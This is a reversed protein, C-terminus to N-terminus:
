AQVAQGREKQWVHGYTHATGEKRVRFMLAPLVLKDIMEAANYANWIQDYYESWHMDRPCYAM